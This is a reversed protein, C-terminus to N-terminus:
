VVVRPRDAHGGEVTEFRGLRRRSAPPETLRALKLCCRRVFPAPTSGVSRPAAVGCLYQLDTRYVVPWQDLTALAQRQRALEIVERVVSTKGVGAPGAVVVSSEGSGLVRSILALEEARGILPWPEQSRDPHDRM